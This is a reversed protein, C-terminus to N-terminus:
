SWIARYVSERMVRDYSVLQVDGPRRFLDIIGRFTARFGKVFLDIRPENVPLDRVRITTGEPDIEDIVIEGCGQSITAWTKPFVRLVAGPGLGFLRVTTEFMGRVFPQEVTSAFHAACFDEYGHMGTEERVADLIALQVGLPIWDVRSCEEVHAIERKARARVGEQVHPPQRELVELIAKTLPARVRAEPTAM